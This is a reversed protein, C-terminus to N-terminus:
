ELLPETVLVTATLHRLLFGCSNALEYYVLLLNSYQMFSAKSNSLGCEDGPLTKTSFQDATVSLKVTPPNDPQIPDDLPKPSPKTTVENPDKLLGNTQEATNEGSTAPAITKGTPPEVINDSGSGDIPPLNNTQEDTNDLTSVGPILGFTDGSTSEGMTPDVTGDTDALSNFAKGAADWLFGGLEAEKELVAADIKLLTGGGDWLIQGIDKDQSLAPPSLVLILILRMTMAM